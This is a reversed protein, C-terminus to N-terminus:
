LATAAHRDPSTTQDKVYVTYKRQMYKRQVVPCQIRM